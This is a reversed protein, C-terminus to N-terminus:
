PSASRRVGLRKLGLDLATGLRARIWSMWRREFVFGGQMWCGAPREPELTRAPPRFLGEYPSVPICYWGHGRISISGDSSILDRVKLEQDIRGGAQNVRAPRVAMEIEEIL